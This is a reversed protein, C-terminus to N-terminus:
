PISFKLILKLELHLFILLHYSISVINLNIIVEYSEETYTQIVEIM